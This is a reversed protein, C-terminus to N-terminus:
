FIDRKYWNGWKCEMLVPKGVGQKPSAPFLLNWPGTFTKRGLRLQTGAPSAGTSLPLSLSAHTHSCMWYKCVQSHTCLVKQGNVWRQSPVCLSLSNTRYGQAPAPSQSSMWSLWMHIFKEFQKELTWELAAYNTANFNTNHYPMDFNNLSQM